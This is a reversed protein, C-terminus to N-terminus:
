LFRSEGRFVAKSLRPRHHLAGRGDTEFLHRGRRQFHLQSANGGAHKCQWITEQERYIRIPLAIRATAALASSWPGCANVTCRAYFTGKATAVGEIRDGTRVLSKCKTGFSVMGGLRQFQEVLAETCHVPDAYGGGPEHVVAAVGDPNLWALDNGIGGIESLTTDIGAARQMKVNDRAGELADEPVLFYWGAQNFLDARGRLRELGRLVAISDRTM